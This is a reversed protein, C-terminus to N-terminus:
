ETEDELTQVEDTTYPRKPLPKPLKFEKQRTQVSVKYTKLGLVERNWARILMAIQDRPSIVIKNIKLNNFRKNLAIVASGDGEGVLGALRYLFSDADAREIHQSMYWHTTGIVSPSVHTSGRQFNVALETSRLIDRHANLFALMEPSSASNVQGTMGFKTIMLAGKTIASIINTSKYGMFHLEQAFTRFKGIDMNGQSAPDMNRQVPWTMTRGLRVQATLRHQGNNLHGDWDICIMDNSQGWLGEEISRMWQQVGNEMLPRNIRTTALVQSAQEPTWTEYALTPEPRKKPAAM